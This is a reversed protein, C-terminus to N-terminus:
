REIVTSSPDIRDRWWNTGWFPNKTRSILSNNSKIRIRRLVASDFLRRFNTTMAELRLVYRQMDRQDIHPSMCEIELLNSIRHLVLGTDVVRRRQVRRRNATAGYLTLPLFLPIWIRSVGVLWNACLQSFFTRRTWGGGRPWSAAYAHSLARSTLACAYPSIPPANSYERWHGWAIAAASMIMFTQRLSQRLNDWPLNQHKQEEM